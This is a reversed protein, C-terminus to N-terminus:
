WTQLDSVPAPASSREADGETYLSAEAILVSLAELGCGFALDVLHVNGVVCTVKEVECLLLIM